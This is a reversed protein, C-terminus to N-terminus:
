KELSRTIPFLCKRSQKLRAHIATKLWIVFSKYLVLLSFNPSDVIKEFLPNGGFLFVAQKRKVFM